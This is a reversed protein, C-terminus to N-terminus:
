DSVFTTTIVCSETGAYFGLTGTFQLSGESITGAAEIIMQASETDGSGLTEIERIIFSGDISVVGVVTEGNSWDNFLIIGQEVSITFNETEESEVVDGSTGFCNDPDSSAQTGTYTATFNETSDGVFGVYSMVYDDDNTHIRRGDVQYTRTTGGALRASFDIWILSDDTGVGYYSSGRWEFEIGWLDSPSFEVAQLASNYYTNASITKVVTSDDGYTFTLTLTAGTVASVGGFASAAIAIENTGDARSTFTINPETDSLSSSSTTTSSGGTTNTAETEEDGSVTGEYTTEDSEVTIVFTLVDGNSLGSLVFRVAEISAVYYSAPNLSSVVVTGNKSISIRADDLDDESDGFAALPITITALGDATLKGIMITPIPSTSNGAISTGENSDSCASLCFMILVLLGVITNKM